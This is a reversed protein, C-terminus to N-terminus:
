PIMLLPGSGVLWTGCGIRAGGALMRVYYRVLALLPRRGWYHRQARPPLLLQQVGRHPVGQGMEWQLAPSTLITRRLLQGRQTLQM